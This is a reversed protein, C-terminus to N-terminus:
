RTPCTNIGLISYLMCHGLLGTALPIIGILGWWWLSDGSRLLFVLALLVAGVVIRLVKDVGGVNPKMRVELPSLTAQGPAQALALAPILAQVRSTKFRPVPL